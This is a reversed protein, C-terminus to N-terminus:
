RQDGKGATAWVALGQADLDLDLRWLELIEADSLAVGHTRAEALLYDALAARIAPVADAGGAAKIAALTLKVCDDMRRLMEAALPKPPTRRSFHTLYVAEPELAMMREVSDRMDVPDFQVPTTSPFVFARGDVDCERYSIGFTDGTFIGKAARDHIFIHHRAHGPSEHCILERRGLTITTGETAEIVREAAVPVLEGYLARATERGYVEETAAMLRAPDIMHRAGRPHVVLRANPFARMMAGAGGAHDLHIHTLIVYDVADATLGLAALAEQAQPLSANSGTDVFAARGGDVVLHIAALMHRVYGADFAHIGNGYDFLEM